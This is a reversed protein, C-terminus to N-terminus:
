EQTFFVNEKDCNKINFIKFMKIHGCVSGRIDVRSLYISIKYWIFLYLAKIWYKICSGTIQVSLHCKKM